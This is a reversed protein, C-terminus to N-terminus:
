GREGRRLSMLNIPKLAACQEAVSTRNIKGRSTRPIEPLLYWRQPMQHRALHQATWDRLACLTDPDDATLVVAVGVDEGLLPEPYAFACVDATAPFREIVSDIDAPYVKMGGKNIEERERGRLYLWGRDDIVGIDGTLFWGDSVVRATLDDRDLYGRMLAPTNIWVHGSEGPRRIASPDSPTGPESSNLVRLVGGWATGVLGDEPTFSGITTGALWSGTETIGYSNFVDPTGSWARVSEWLSASLPASGIFVRALSRNAPPKAIRQALRWVAPVSSMFTIDHEDVIAGLQAVIEPKFPPLIYLDCGSLWPFLCNCILGHGFHTPLLCLTRRYADLGLHDRLSVWRARLSRHTHVVGKPQGTTGSTFLILADDDLRTGPAASAAGADEHVTIDVVPVNLRGLVAAAEADAAGNFLSLRPRAWRALTEIEFPTFRADIPIACGGARWVALLEVFFENCNGFHIFARDGRVFGRALYDATRMAVRRAVDDANWRRGTLPEILNGTRTDLM